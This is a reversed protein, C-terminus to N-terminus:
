IARFLMPASSCISSAQRTRLIASPADERDIVEFGLHKFFDAATTTLLYARTGGANSIERLMGEAVTRGAGTGRSEQPVVVSRLLADEGYLEFGGFGLLRGGREFRFFSRDPEGVDDTPLKAATLAALFKPDNGPIPTSSIM